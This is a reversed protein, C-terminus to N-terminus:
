AHFPSVLLKGTHRAAAYETLSATVYEVCGDEGCECLFPIPSIDDFLHARAGVAIRANRIQAMVGRQSSVDPAEM